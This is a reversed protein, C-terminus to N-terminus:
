AENRNPASRLAACVLSSLGEIAMGMPMAMGSSECRATHSDDTILARVAIPYRGYAKNIHSVAM